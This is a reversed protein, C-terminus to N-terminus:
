RPTDVCGALKQRAQDAWPGRKDFELYRQWHEVAKGTQGLQQLINAAHWHAEPYDPHIDLAIELSELASILEGRESHLCGLQTWAEIYNHDAEVAAYYREVAGDLKGLRYLVEALLFSLEADGPREMLCLRFAEAAQELEGAELLRSGERYWEETSWHVREDSRELAATGPHRITPTASDDTPPAPPEFDFHRQLSSPELLGVNDRILVHADWELLDLQALSKAADPWMQKLSLLSQELEQRSVGSALLDSIRRASSAM